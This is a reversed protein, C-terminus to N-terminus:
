RSALMNYGRGQPVNVRNSLRDGPRRVAGHSRRQADM